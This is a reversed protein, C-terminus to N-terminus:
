VHNYLNLLEKIYVESNLEKKIKKQSEEGMRALMEANESMYIIKELIEGQDLNVLFGNVGDEVLKYTTGTNSALITNKYYMAEMVSQSPYNDPYILSVYISSVRLIEYLNSIHGVFVKGEKIEENLIEKIDKELKGKGLIYVKWDKKVKLFEKIVNAFLLPNKREKFRSAFVITKEKNDLNSLLNPPSYFPISSKFIRSNDIERKSENYYKMKEDVTDSVCYYYDFNMYMRKRFDNKFMNKAVDPSTVEFISTFKNNKMLNFGFGGYGSHIIDIKLRNMKNKIYFYEVFPNALSRIFRVNINPVILVKEAINKSKLKDSLESDKLAHEYLEKNLFLYVDVEDQNNQLQFFIRIFRKEAGSLGNSNTYLAIKKM